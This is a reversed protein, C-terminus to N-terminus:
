YSRQGRDSRYGGGQRDDSRPRFSGETRPARPRAIDINLPRMNGRGDDFEKGSLEDKARMADAENVFEVFGIGKSRGSLKDMIVM